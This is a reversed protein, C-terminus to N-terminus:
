IPRSHVVEFRSKLRLFPTEFYRYSIAAIVIALPPTLWYVIATQQRETFHAMRSLNDLLIIVIYHLTYIGYSIKGFYVLPKARSTLKSGSFSQFIFVSGVGVVAMAFSMQVTFHDELVFAAGALLALGILFLALRTLAGYAAPRGQTVLYLTAGLAFYQFQVLSNPWVVPHFLVHRIGLIIGAIQAVAGFLSRFRSCPAGRHM